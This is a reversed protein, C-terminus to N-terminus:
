AESRRRSEGQLDAPPRHLVGEGPTASRPGVKFAAGIHTEPCCGCCTSVEDMVIYNTSRVSERFYRRKKRSNQYVQKKSERKIKRWCTSAVMAARFLALSHSSFTPRQAEESRKREWWRM